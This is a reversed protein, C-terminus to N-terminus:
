SKVVDRVGRWFWSAIWFAPILGAMGVLWAVPDALPSASPDDYKVLSFLQYPTWTGNQAADAVVGIGAMPQVLLILLTIVATVMYAILLTIVVWKLVQLIFGLLDVM